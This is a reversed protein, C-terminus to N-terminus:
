RPTLNPWAIEVGQALLSAQFDALHRATNRVARPSLGKEHCFAVLAGAAEGIAWEV